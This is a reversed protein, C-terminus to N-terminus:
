LGFQARGFTQTGVEQSLTQPAVRRDDDVPDQAQAQASVQPHGTKQQSTVACGGLVSLGLLPLLLRTTTTM